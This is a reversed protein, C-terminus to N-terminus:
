SSRKLGAATFEDAPFVPNLVVDRHFYEGVLGGDVRVLRAGVQIWREADVYITVRDFGDREVVWPDTPPQEDLAFADAERRVCTRTVVHCVRGGLEAVARPGEYSTKLEGADRHRGWTTHTRLMTARFGGDRLCIRAAGRASEGKLNITYEKPFWTRRTKIKDPDDLEAFIAEATGLRIGSVWRLHVALPKEQLAVHILEAEQLNGRVREHKALTATYGKVERDYRTLCAALMAVPDSKALEAFREPTPLDGAATEFTPPVVAPPPEPCALTYAGYGAAAAGGAALTRLFLRRTM